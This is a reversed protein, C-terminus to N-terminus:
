LIIGTRAPRMNYLRKELIKALQIQQLEDYTGDLMVECYTAIEALRIEFEDTPHNLLREQLVPHHLVERSLRIFEEPFMKLNMAPM